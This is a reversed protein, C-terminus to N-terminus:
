IRGRSGVFTFCHPPMFHQQRTSLKAIASVCHPSEIHHQTSSSGHQPKAQQLLIIAIVFHRLSHQLETHQKSAYWRLFNEMAAIIAAVSCIAFGGFSILWRAFSASSGILSIFGIIRILGGLSVFGRNFGVIIQCDVLTSSGVLSIIGVIFLSVFSLGSFGGIGNIGVLSTSSFGGISILGLLGIFSVRLGDIWCDALTSSGINILILWHTPSGVFSKFSLNGLSIFSVFGIFGVLGLGIISVILGVFSVLGLGTFGVLGDIWCDAM